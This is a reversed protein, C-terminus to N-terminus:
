PAGGSLPLYRFADSKVIAAPLSRFDNQNAALGQGITELSCADGAVDARGMAFRFWQTVACSAVEASTSLKQAMAVAGDFKGDVDSGTLAGSADV